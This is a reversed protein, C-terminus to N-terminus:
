FTGSEKEREEKKIYRINGVPSSPTLPTEDVNMPGEEERAADVGGDTAQSEPSSHASTSPTADLRALRRRPPGQRFDSMVVANWENNPGEPVGLNFCDRVHLRPVTQPLPHLSRLNQCDCIVVKPVQVM